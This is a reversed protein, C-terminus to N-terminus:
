ISSDILKAIQQYSSQWDVYDIAISYHQEEVQLVLSPFGSIPLQRTEEIETILKQKTSQSNLNEAFEQEDMGLGKALQVLVEDNSPNKAELYYARQIAYYMEQELGAERALLAARCAPYTSRRPQCLQWFDFNFRTGLQSAIKQWTQQLFQQMEIAMPEYSDPALGGLSYNINVAGALNQQLLQWTPHYGWCWSCMPDYVYYLVPKTM